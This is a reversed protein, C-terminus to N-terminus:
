QLQRAPITMFRTALGDRMMFIKFPESQVGDMGPSGPPIGPMAIGDMDLQAALMVDIAEIPIHGEIIYQSDEIIATYCSSLIEMIMHQERFAVMDEMHVTVVDFGNEKLYSM